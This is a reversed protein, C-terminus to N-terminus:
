AAPRADDRDLFDLMIALTAEADAESLLGPTMRAEARPMLKRVEDFYIRLMDTEACTLLTPAAVLPLRERKPYAIAAQYPHHYTGSAKLVELVKDHLADVTPLGQDRRTEPTRRYWPWWIYTDKVFNWIWLLHLGNMDKEVGPAYNRLMDDREEDAYVSMGDLILRRIRDPAAIAVECAINGGTHSGYVDFRDIGLSDLARLHADAYPAIERRLDCPPASDGNGLTDLAYVPRSRAFRAILPELVKSSAPSPHFMVLPTRDHHLGAHRYHVQGEEISTFGRLIEMCGTM